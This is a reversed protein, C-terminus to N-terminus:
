NFLGWLLVPLVVSFFYIGGIVVVIFLIIGWLGQLADKPKTFLYYFLLGVMFLIYAIGLFDAM